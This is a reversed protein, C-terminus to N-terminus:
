LLVLLTIAIGAIGAGVAWPVHRLRSSSSAEEELARLYVAPLLRSPTVSALEQEAGVGEAFWAGTRSDPDFVQQEVAPAHCSRAEPM